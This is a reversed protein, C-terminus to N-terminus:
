WDKLLARVETIRINKEKGQIKGIVGGLIQLLRMLAVFRAGFNRTVRDHRAPAVVHVVHRGADVTELGVAHGPFQFRGGVGEDAGLEADTEVIQVVDAEGASVVAAENHESDLSEILWIILDKPFIIADLLIIPLIHYFKLHSVSSNCISGSSIVNISSTHAPPPLRPGETSYKTLPSSNPLITNMCYLVKGSPELSSSGILTMSTPIPNSLTGQSM